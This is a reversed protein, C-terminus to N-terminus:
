FTRYDHPSAYLQTRLAQLRGQALGQGLHQGIRNLQQSGSNETINPLMIQVHMDGLQASMSSHTGRSAMYDYQSMVRIGDPLNFTSGQNKLEQQIGLQTQLSQKTLDRIDKMVQDYEEKNTTDDLEAKRQALNEEILGRREQLERLRLNRSIFSDDSAGGLNVRQQLYKIELDDMDNGFGTRWSTLKQLRLNKVEVQADAIQQKLGLIADELKNDPDALNQAKLSELEATMENIMTQSSGIRSGIYESSETDVFLSGITDKYTRRAQARAMGRQANDIYWELSTRQENLDLENKLPKIEKSVEHQKAEADKLAQSSMKYEETEIKNGNGDTTWRKGNQELNQVEEKRSDVFKSIVTLEENYAEREKKIADLRLKLYEESDSKMGSLLANMQDLNSSMQVDKVREKIRTKMQDISFYQLQGDKYMQNEWAKRAEEAKRKYEAQQADSISTEKYNRIFKGEELRQLEYNHGSEDLFKRNLDISTFSPANPNNARRASNEIEVAERWDVTGYNQQMWQRMEADYAMFDGVGIHVNGPTYWDRVEDVVLRLAGKFQGGITSNEGFYEIQREAVDNYRTRHDRIARDEPTMMIDQVIGSIMDDVVLEVGLQAAFGALGRAIGGIAGVAGRARHPITDIFDMFSQLHGKTSREAEQGVDRIARSLISYSDSGQRNTVVARRNREDYSDLATNLEGIDRIVRGTSRYQEDLFSEFHRRGGDDMSALRTAAHRDSNGMRNFSDRDSLTNVLNNAFSRDFVNDLARSATLSRAYYASRQHVEDVTMTTRSGRCYGRSEDMVSFLDSMNSIRGNDRAYQRIERRRDNDMNALEEFYPRLVNNRMAGQYFPASAMQASLNRGKHSNDALYNDIFRTAGYVQRGTPTQGGLFRQRMESNARHGEYDGWQGLKKFGYMDGSGVIANVITTVLSSITDTNDKTGTSLNNSNKALTQVGHNIEELISVLANTVSVGAREMTVVPSGMRRSLMAVLMDPIEQSENIDKMMKFFNFENTGNVNMDDLFSMVKSNHNGGDDALMIRVIEDERTSSGSAEKAIDALIDILSKPVDLGLDNTEYVEIDKRKLSEVVSPSTIRDAVTKFMNGIMEGSQGSRQIAIANLAIAEDAGVGSSYLAAGSRAIAQMIEESTANSMNTAVVFAAVVDDLEWVSLKFQAMIAELGPAITGVLDSENDLRYIKSAQETFILAEEKDSTLRSAAAAVQSLEGYNLAYFNSMDKMDDTLNGIDAEVRRWDTNGESNKYNEKLAINQLFKLQELQSTKFNDFAQYMAMSPADIMSGAVVHRITNIIAGEIGASNINADRSISTDTYDWTSSQRLTNGANNVTNYTNSLNGGGGSSAMHSIRSSNISLPDTAVEAKINSFQQNLSGKIKNVIENNLNNIENILYRKLSGSLQIEVDRVSQKLDNMMNNTGSSIKSNITRELSSFQRSLEYGQASSMDITGLERMIKEPTTKLEKAIYNQLRKSLSNISIAVSRHDLGNLGTEIRKVYDELLSNIKVATKNLEGQVNHRSGGLAGDLDVSLSEKVKTRISNLLGKLDKQEFNISSGAIDVAPNLLLPKIQNRISLLIEKVTGKSIDLQLGVLNDKSILEGGYKRISDMLNSVQLKVLRAIERNLENFEDKGIPIAGANYSPDIKDYINGIQKLIARNLEADVKAFLHRITERKINLPAKGVATLALGNAAILNSIEGEIQKRLNSGTARTTQASLSSLSSRMTDIRQNIRGFRADLLEMQEGFAQIKAISKRFELVVDAGIGISRGQEEVM